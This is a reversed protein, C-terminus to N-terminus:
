VANGVARIRLLKVIIKSGHELVGLDLPRHDEALRDARQGGQLKRDRMGLPDCADHQRV